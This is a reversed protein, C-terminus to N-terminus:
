HGDTAESGDTRTQNLAARGAALAKDVQSYWDPDDMYITGITEASLAKICEQLAERLADREQELREITSAAEALLADGASVNPVDTYRGPPTWYPVGRRLREVLEKEENGM